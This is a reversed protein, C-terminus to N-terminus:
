KFGRLNKLAVYAGVVAGTGIAVDKSIEVIDTVLDIIPPDADTLSNYQRELNMRSVARRLEEDTMRRSTQNHNSQKRRKSIRNAAGVANGVADLADASKKLSYEAPSIAPKDKQKITPKFLDGSKQAKAASGRSGTIQSVRVQRAEGIETGSKGSERPKVSYPQYRRVGWKMGLVGYHMLYDPYYNQM